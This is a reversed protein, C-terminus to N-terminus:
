VHGVFGLDPPHRISDPCAEAADIDQDGVGAAVDARAARSNAAAASGARILADADRQGVDAGHEVPVQERAYEATARYRGLHHLPLVAPDDGNAGDGAAIPTVVSRDIRYGLGGDVFVGAAQGHLQPWVVNRHVAHRRAARHGISEQDDVLDLLGLE